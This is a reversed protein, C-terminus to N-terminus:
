FGRPEPVSIELVGLLQDMILECFVRGPVWHSVYEATVSSMLLRNGGFYFCSGVGCGLEDLRSVRLLLSARERSVGNRFLFTVQITLFSAVALSM